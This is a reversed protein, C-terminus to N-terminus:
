LTVEFKITQGFLDRSVRVPRDDFTLDDDQIEVVGGARVLVARLVALPLMGARELAGLIEAACFRDLASQSADSYVRQLTAGILDLLQEREVLAAPAVPATM